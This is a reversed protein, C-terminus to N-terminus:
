SGKPKDKIRDIPGKDDEIHEAQDLQGTDEQLHEAPEAGQV